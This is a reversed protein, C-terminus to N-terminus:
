MASEEKTCIVDRLVEPVGEIDVLVLLLVDLRRDGLEQQGALQVATDAAEDQFPVLCSGQLSVLRDDLGQGPLPNIHHLAIVGGHRVRVEALCGYLHHTARHM